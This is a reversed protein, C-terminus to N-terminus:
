LDPKLQAEERQCIVDCEEAGLTVAAVEWHFSTILEDLSQAVGPM